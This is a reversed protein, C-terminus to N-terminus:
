RSFSGKELKAQFLPHDIVDRNVIGGPLRGQAIALLNACSERSNDRALEETWALSHPALIVNRCNRIPADLPLPETEFVDLGAGAIWDERLAETLAAEDVLPGRATNILFATRKMLKLMDRSVIGKTGASLSCNVCLFDSERFLDPLSVMEVGLKRAAAASAFPDTAIMRGFGLSSSMRFMEGAINGLGISGLTRGAINRGLGPLSSRWRGSEVIKHQTVLKLSCAFILAIAAEAVPRRVANPTIALMIGADTLAETDIRDYGVGWRSVVALRRLGTLNTRNLRTALALIGDYQDLQAATPTDEEAFPMLEFQLSPHQACIEEIAAEYHGKADVAFDHSVGITFSKTVSM